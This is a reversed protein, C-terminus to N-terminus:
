DGVKMLFLNLITIYPLSPNSESITQRVYEIKEVTDLPGNSIHYSNIWCPQGKKLGLSVVFYQHKM